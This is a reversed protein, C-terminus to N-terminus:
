TKAAPQWLEIPNGEPDHLRAFRGNPYTKPDVKVAIGAAELQAAMKDLDRVRFNVMWAKTDDGFYKTKEPFPAFATPGAEQQWGPDGYGTPLVSVGLHQQYWLALAKPDHARFFLGGIGTVKELGDSPVGEALAQRGPTFPVLASGLSASLWRLM